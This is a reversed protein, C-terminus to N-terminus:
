SSRHASLSLVCEVIDSNICWATDTGGGLHQDVGLAAALDIDQATQCFYEVSLEAANAAANQWQLAQRGVCARM